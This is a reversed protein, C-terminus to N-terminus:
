AVTAEVVPSLMLSGGAMIESNNFAFDLQVTLSQGGVVQFGGGLIPVKLGSTGGSAITYTVTVGAITISANSAFFRIENYRGAPIMTNGLIKPVSLVTLLNVSASTVVTHWGSDNGANAAHLEVKDFSVVIATISRDYAQPPPDKVSLSVNSSGYFLFGVVAGAAIAVLLVGLIKKNLEGEDTV